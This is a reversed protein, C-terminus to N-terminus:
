LEEEAKLAGNRGFNMEEENGRAKGSQSLVDHVPKTGHANLTHESASAFRRQAHHPFLLLRQQAGHRRKEVIGQDLPGSDSM